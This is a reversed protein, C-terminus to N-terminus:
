GPNALDFDHKARLQFGVPGARFQRSQDPPEGVLVLEQQAVIDLFYFSPSFADSGTGSLRLILSTTIEVPIEAPKGLLHDRNAPGWMRLATTGTKPVGVHLEWRRTTM